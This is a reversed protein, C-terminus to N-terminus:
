RPSSSDSPTAAAPPSLDAPAGDPRRHMRYLAYFVVLVILPMVLYPWLATRRDRAPRVAM